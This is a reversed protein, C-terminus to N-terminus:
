YGMGLMDKIEDSPAWPPDFTINVRPKFGKDAIKAEIEEFLVKGYPCLPSTFTMLVYVENEKITIEYILGLTWVDIMLEPDEVQKLIEIIEEKTAM